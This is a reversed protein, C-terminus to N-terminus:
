LYRLKQLALSALALGMSGTVGVFSGMGDCKKPLEKSFVVQFDEKFGSKKLEYRFKKAFPDNTTKWISAIEILTPNVRKAGGCSSVLKKYTKKALAVKVPIDDIADIVLDYKEFDFEKIWETTVKLTIYNIEPYLKALVETKTEGLYQSGIQRNQNTLEYTDFDVITINKVGSRYLADLCFSGVGGAGFLIIKAKTIKEFDNGFLLRCKEFRM